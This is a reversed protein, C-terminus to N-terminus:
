SRERETRRCAFDRPKVVFVPIISPTPSSGLSTSCVNRSMAASRVSMRVMPWYRCGVGFCKGIARQAGGSSNARQFSNPSPSPM